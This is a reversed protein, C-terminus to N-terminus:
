RLGAYMTLNLSTDASSDTATVNAMAAATDRRPGFVLVQRVHTDKGGNFNEHVVLRFTFAAVATSGRGLRMTTWGSPQQLAKTCVEALDAHMTGALVSLAVPCYSDDERVDVYLKIATVATRRRFHITVSHPVDADSQWYTKLDGDRLHEVGFGPKASSLSWCAARGIEEEEEGDGGRGRGGGAAAAATTGRTPGGFMLSTPSAFGDISSDPTSAPQLAKDEEEEEEEVGDGMAIGEFEGEEEEFMTAGSPGKKKKPDWL